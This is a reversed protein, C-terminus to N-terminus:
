KEEKTSDSQEEKESSEPKKFFDDPIEVGFEVSDITVSSSNQMVQTKMSMPMAIGEIMEYNSFYTESTVEQNNFTTKTTQKLIVYTEKDIFFDIVDGDKKELRLKYVPTGEMEEEGMYELKHDKEEWKYLDGEINASKKFQELQKGTLDQPDPSMWPAIMWGNEGDFAQVMAQGQMKVENRIMNPDKIFMTFPFERGMTQSTGSMKITKVQELKKQGVTEFHNKLIEDRKDEQGNSIFSFCVFVMALLLSNVTKM